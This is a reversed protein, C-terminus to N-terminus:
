YCKIIKKKSYKSILTENLRQGRGWKKDENTVVAKIKYFKSNKNLINLSPIAFTGNAFVINM